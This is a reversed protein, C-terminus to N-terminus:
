VVWGSRNTRLGGVGGASGVMAQILSGFSSVVVVCHNGFFDAECLNVRAAWQSSGTPNKSRLPRPAYTAVRTAHTDPAIPAIATSNDSMLTRRAGLSLEIIAGRTTAHTNPIAVTARLTAAPIM